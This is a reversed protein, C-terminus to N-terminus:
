FLQRELNSLGSYVDGNGLHLTAKFFTFQAETEQMTLYSM